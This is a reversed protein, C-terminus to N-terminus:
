SFFFAHEDAKKQLFSETVVKGLFIEMDNVEKIIM